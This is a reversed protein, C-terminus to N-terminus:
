GRFLGTESRIMHISEMEKFTLDFLTATVEKNVIDLLGFSPPINKVMPGKLHGPNMLLLGDALEMHPHHTHGHLIIDVVTRDDNTIDKELCHVLMIRVGMVSERQKPPLSGDLYKAHYIGPVQVVEVGEDALKLVDEYDDGLHYLTAIRQTDVLWEVVKELYEINRHTDSVVGIKM